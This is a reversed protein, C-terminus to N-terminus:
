AKRGTDLEARLEAVIREAENGAARAIEDRERRAPRREEDAAKLAEDARADTARARALSEVSQGEAERISALTAEFTRQTETLRSRADAVIEDSLGLREAIAFAQSAGPLGISLHY